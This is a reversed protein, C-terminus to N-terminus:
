LNIQKEGTIIAKGGVQVRTIEHGNVVLSVIIQSPKRMSYGQEFFLQSIQQLSVKKNIYLYCALAGTSSGTASEEHIGHLPDFNRSHAIADEDVTDFTFIHM